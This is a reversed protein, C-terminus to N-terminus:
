GRPIGPAIVGAEPEEVPAPAADRARRGALVVIAVGVLLLALGPIAGMRPVQGLWAWAIFAAGPVELLILVSITTASVSRLSFNFLSHGLLQPGITLGVIALWATAPYGALPVGAVLCVALLLVACVTYCVATYATTSTTVRAREGLATYVAVAMGGAVALLDGLLATTSARLDAGTAAAAGLVAVAIGIWTLRPLRRGQGVAILGQWVPQTAGLATATAVTTLKTSPVWTVFHAALAVGALVCFLGDRRAPGRILSALEGRRRVVAVPGLVGAAMATRWFAIAVAPAAAYAIMPGSASVAVVAVVLAGITVLDTNRTPRM